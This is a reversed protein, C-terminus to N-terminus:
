IPNVGNPTPLPTVAGSSITEGVDGKVTIIAFTLGTATGASVVESCPIGPTKARQGRKKVISMTCKKM